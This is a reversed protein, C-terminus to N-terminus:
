PGIRSRADLHEGEGEDRQRQPQDLTVENAASLGYPHENWNNTKQLLTCPSGTTPSANM